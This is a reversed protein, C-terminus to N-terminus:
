ISNGDGKSRWGLDELARSTPMSQLAMRGDRLGQAGRFLGRLGGIQVRLQPPPAPGGGNPITGIHVARFRVKLGKTRLTGNEYDYSRRAIAILTRLCPNNTAYDSREIANTPILHGHKQVTDGFEENFRIGSMYLQSGQPTNGKCHSQLSVRSLQLSQAASTAMTSRILTVGSQASFVDGHRDAVRSRKFDDLDRRV